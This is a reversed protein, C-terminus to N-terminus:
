GLEMDDGSARAKGKLTRSDKAGSSSSGAQSSGSAATAQPPPPRAVLEKVEEDIGEFVSTPPLGWIRGPADEQKEDFVRGITDVWQRRTQVLHKLQEPVVLNM